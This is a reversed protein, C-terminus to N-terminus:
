PTLQRISIFTLLTQTSGGVRYTTDSYNFVSTCVVLQDGANLETIGSVLTFPVIWSAGGSAKSLISESSGGQCPNQPLTPVLIRRVAVNMTQQSPAVATPNSMAVQTRIDYLGAAGAPVTFVFYGPANSAAGNTNDFVSTEFRIAVQNPPGSYNRQEAGEKYIATLPLVTELADLRSEIAELRAVLASGTAAASANAVTDTCTVAGQEDIAAIASGASCSVTPLVGAPGQDGMDGKEGREGMAGQPGPDGPDGKDGQSVSCASVLSLAFLFAGRM